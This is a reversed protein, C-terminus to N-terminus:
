CYMNPRIRIVSPFLTILMKRYASPLNTFAHPSNPPYLTSWFFSLYQITPSHLRFSVSLPTGVKQGKKQLLLLPHHGRHHRHVPHDPYRDVSVSFLM